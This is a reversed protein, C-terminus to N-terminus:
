QNYEVLLCGCDYIQRLNHKYTMDVERETPNCDPWKKLCSQKMYVQRNERNHGDTYFYRPCSEGVKIWNSSKYGSGNFLRRDVFSTLKNIGLDNMAYKILKSFGGLVQTYLKTCMRGLEYDKNTSRQAFNKRITVVQVLENNYYLGYNYPASKHAGQIHNQKIFLTAEKGSINRVECNRAYIKNNYIGLSSLIISKCIDKKDRWEDEFIHILRIGIRECELTKKLHKNRYDKSADKDVSHWYLGDFEIAVKKEPVYIDLELPKIIQRDNMIVNYYPKIIDAIENEYHSSGRPKLNALPSNVLLDKNWLLKGEIKLPHQGRYYREFTTVGCDLIDAAEKSTILNNDKMVQEIRDFHKKSRKTYDASSPGVKKGKNWPTKGKMPSTRGKLSSSIKGKVDDSMSIGKNWSTRGKHAESMKRKTEESLKSGKVRGVRKKFTRGLTWGEPQTGEEYKRNAVGDSYWKIM